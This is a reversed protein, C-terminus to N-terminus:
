TNTVPKPLRTLAYLRSIPSTSEYEPIGLMFSSTIAGRSSMGEEPETTLYGSVILINM